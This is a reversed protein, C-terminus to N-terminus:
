KDMPLYKFITSVNNVFFVEDRIRIKEWCEKHANEIFGDILQVPDMQEIMVGVMAVMKPDIVTYGKSTLKEIGEHVAHVMIVANKSFRIEEPPRNDPNM